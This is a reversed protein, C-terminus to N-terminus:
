GAAVGDDSSARGGESAAEGLLVMLWHIRCVILREDVSATSTNLQHDDGRGDQGMGGVWGGAM